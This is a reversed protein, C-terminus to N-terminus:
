LLKQYISKLIPHTEEEKLERLLKKVEAEGGLRLKLFYVLQLRLYWPNETRAAQQILPLLQPRLTPFREYSSALLLLGNTRAELSHLCPYRQLLAQGVTPKEAELLLAAAALFIDESLAQLRAQAEALAAMTDAEYLAFLAANQVESSPDRLAQEIESRWETMSLLEQQSMARLFQWAALRVAASSDRIATRALALVPGLAESDAVFELAEWVQQRWVPSGRSYTSLVQALIESDSTLYAQLETLAQARAWFYRGQQLIGEWWRRPYTRQASGVWLRKPDVDVFRVGRRTLTLLTDGVLVLPLEEYGRESFIAITTPFQFPGRLTDYGRQLIRLGLTDDKQWGQILLRVEDPRRFYQDFFWTWDEGTVKEFAHRLHDIDAAQYANEQLYVRLATFFASDGTLNRLLHLVLGGKQYSHADFMNMPDGYDFRILPVQKQRAETLYTAMSQRRLREAEDQGRSYEIWLYEAYDAFSENLPLQAWSECTVLDGFWHHFLEHAIVDEHDETLAKASDYLLMDGHVVATTNEMAGSVFNRVIVQSYKPWPFEVGLKNSFFELMKPTNGFIAKAHKEWGPELYYSVERGRWTDKVLRFPGVILAFLYPAHPQKLEWCDQRLGKPLKKQSVLLGNSLSVLSDELTVCLRQTSKQNPSDLTPFWASAAEPEGQTWLQRPVCPQQGDPNIFYAGKRGGIAATGGEGIKEPQARYRIAVVVTEQATYPRDLTLYLKLSDYRQATITGTAPRVLRVSEIAMYKADLVLESQPAFYPRLTLRAEGPLERRAWDISLDLETHILQWRMPYSGQYRRAQAPRLLTDETAKTEQRLAEVVQTFATDQTPMRDAGKKTRAKHSCALLFLGIGCSLPFRM